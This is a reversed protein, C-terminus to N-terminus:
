LNELWFECHNVWAEEEPSQEREASNAGNSLFYCLDEGLGVM